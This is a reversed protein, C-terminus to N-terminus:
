LVEVNWAGVRGGPGGIQVGEIVEKGGEAGVAGVQGFKGGVRDVAGAWGVAKVFRNTAVGEWCGNCIGLCSFGLGTVVCAIYM